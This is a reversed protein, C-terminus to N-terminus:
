VRRTKGIMKYYRDKDKYMKKDAIEQLVNIDVDFHESFAYGISVSVKISALYEKTVQAM